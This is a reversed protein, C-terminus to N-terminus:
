SAASPRGERDSRLRGGEERGAPAQPQRDGSRHRLRRVATRALPGRGAGPRRQFVEGTGCSACSQEDFLGTLMAHLAPSEGVGAPAVGVALPMEYKTDAVVHMRCGFRIKKSRPAGTKQDTWRREHAGWAADPDSARGGKCDKRGSSHSEVAKGGYGIRVGFDEEEEMLRRRLEAAAASVPGSEAEATNLNNRFRSMNWSSPVTSRCKAHKVRSHRQGTEPDRGISYKPASQRPLAEFGCIELLKPNRRAERLLSETSCHQFVIGAIHLKWMARPPFDNRGNGRMRKLREILPDDPLNDLVLSLRELDPLGDVNRWHFLLSNNAAM